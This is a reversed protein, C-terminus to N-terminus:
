VAREFDSTPVGSFFVSADARVAANVSAQEWFHLDNDMGATFNLWFVILSITLLKRSITDFVPLSTTCVKFTM